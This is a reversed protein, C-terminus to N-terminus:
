TKRSVRPIHFYLISQRIRFYDGRSGLMFASPTWCQIQVTPTSRASIVIPQARNLESHYLDSKNRRARRRQLCMHIRYLLLAHPLRCTRWCCLTILRQIIRVAERSSNMIMKVRLNSIDYIYPAGIRSTELDYVVVCWLRYSEEPRTILEDCLGRGSLM